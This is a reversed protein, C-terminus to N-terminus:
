SVLPEQAKPVKASTGFMPVEPALPGEPASEEHLREEQDRSPSRAPSTCTSDGGKEASPPAAM